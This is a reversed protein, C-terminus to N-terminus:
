AAQSAGADTPPGAPRQFILLAGRHGGHDTLVAHVDDVGHTRLVEFLRPLSYEYMPFFPEDTPLGRARLVMADVIRSARRARHVM